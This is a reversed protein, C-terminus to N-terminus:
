SSCEINLCELGVSCFAFVNDHKRRILFVVLLLMVNKEQYAAVQHVCGCEQGLAAPGYRCKGM